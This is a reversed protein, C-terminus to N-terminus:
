LVSIFYSGLNENIANKLEQESLGLKSKNEKIVNIWELRFDENSEFTKTGGMLRFKALPKALYYFKFGKFIARLWYERDMVFNLSINLKGLTEFVERRFFLGPQKIPNDTLLDKSIKVPKGKSLGISKGKEDIILVDGHIIDVDPNAEFIDMVEQLVWDCYEDDSNLWGVIEGSSKEIAKNIADTQGEDPEM